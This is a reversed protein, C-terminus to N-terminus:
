LEAKKKLLRYPRLKKDCPEMSPLDTIGLELQMNYDGREAETQLEAEEAFLVIYIKKGSKNLMQRANIGCHLTLKVMVVNRILTAFDKAQDGTDDWSLDMYNQILRGGKYM